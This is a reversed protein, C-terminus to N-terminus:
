NDGIELRTGMMANLIMLMAGMDLFVNQKPIMMSTWCKWKCVTHYKYSNTSNLVYRVNERWVSPMETWCIFVFWCCDDEKPHWWVAVDAFSAFGQHKTTFTSSSQRIAISFCCCSDTTNRQHYICTQGGRMNIQTMIHQSRLEELMLNIQFALITLCWEM